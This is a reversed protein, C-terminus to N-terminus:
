YFTFLTALYWMSLLLPWFLLKMISNDGYNFIKWELGKLFSGLLIANIAIFVYSSFYFLEIYTIEPTLIRSRENVHALVLIFMFGASSQIANMTSLGINGTPHKSSSFVIMFLIISIIILPVFNMIFPSAFTRKIMISYVLAPFESDTQSDGFTSKSDLKQFSFYSAITRSEPLNVLESVGPTYYPNLVEYSHLDPILLVNKSDDPYTILIRIENEEFPYKKYTFDQLLNVRFKWKVLIHDDFETESVLEASLARAELSSAEPFYFSPPIENYIKKPYKMWLLGAVKASYSEKILSEIFIGTPVEYYEKNSRKLKEAYFEGLYKKLMADNIVQDDHNHIDTYDFQLNIRWIVIINIALLLAYSIALWWYKHHSHTHTKIVYAILFFLFLSAAFSLNIIKKRGLKSEAFSDSESSFVIVNTWGNSLLTNFFYYSDELTYRSVYEVYGKEYTLMKEDKELVNEGPLDKINQLLYDKNPHTLFTGDPLLTYGYGAPGVSLSDVIANFDRLAISYDLVGIIKDDRKVKIGYDIILEQAAGAFGPQHWMHDNGNIVDTYWGSVSLSTDRYNYTEEVFQFDNLKKNYFPSYLEKKEDFMYPEYAMTVGVIQPIAESEKKLLELLENESTITSILPALKEAHDHIAFIMSDLVVRVNEVATEGMRINEEFRDTEYSQYDYWSYLTYALTVVLLLLSFQRYRNM